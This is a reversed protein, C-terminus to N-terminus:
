EESRMRKAFPGAGNMSAQHASPGVCWTASPTSWWSPRMRLIACRSSRSSATTSHRGDPEQPGVGVRVDPAHLAMRRLEDLLGADVECDLDDGAVEVVRVADLM